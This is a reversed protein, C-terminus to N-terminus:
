VENQASIEAYEVYALKVCFRYAKYAQLPTPIDQLLVRYLPNYVPRKHSRYIRMGADNDQLLLTDNELDLDRTNEPTDLCFEIDIIEILGDEDEIKAVWVLTRNSEEVSGGILKAFRRALKKPMRYFYVSIAAM